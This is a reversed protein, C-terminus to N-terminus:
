SAEWEEVGDIRGKQYGELWGADFGREYADGEIVQCGFEAYCKMRVDHGHAREWNALDEDLPDWPPPGLKDQQDFPVYKRDPM